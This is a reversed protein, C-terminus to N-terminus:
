LVVDSQLMIESIVQWMGTTLISISSVQIGPCEPSNVLRSSVELDSSTSSFIVVISHWSDMVVDHVRSVVLVLNANHCGAVGSKIDSSCAVLPYRHTEGMISWWPPLAELIWRLRRSCSPAAATILRCMLGIGLNDIAQVHLWGPRLRQVQYSGVSKYAM